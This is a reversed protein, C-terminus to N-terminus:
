SSPFRFLLLRFPLLVFKLNSSSSCILFFPCLSAINVTLTFSPHYALLLCFAEFHLKTPHFSIPVEKCEAQRAHEPQLCYRPRLLPRSLTERWKRAHSLSLLPAPAIIYVRKVEDRGTSCEIFLQADQLTALIAVRFRSLDHDHAQLWPFVSSKINPLRSRWSHRRRVRLFKRVLVVMTSQIPHKM